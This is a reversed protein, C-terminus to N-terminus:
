DEVWRGKHDIFVEKTHEKIFDYQCDESCFILEERGLISLFNYTNETDLIEGCQDCYHKLSM